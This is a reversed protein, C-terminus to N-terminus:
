NPSKPENKLQSIWERDQSLESRTIPFAPPSPKKLYLIALIAGVLHLGAFAFAGGFWSWAGSSSAIWGIVGAILLLYALLACLGLLIIALMKRAAGRGVEKAELRILGLRAQLFESISDKLGEDGTDPRPPTEPSASM